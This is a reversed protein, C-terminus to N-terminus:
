EERVCYMGIVVERGEEREITGLKFTKVEQWSGSNIWIGESFLM